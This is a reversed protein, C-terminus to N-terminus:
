IKYLNVINFLESLLNGLNSKCLDEAIINSRVKKNFHAVFNCRNEIIKKIIDEQQIELIRKHNKFVTTLLSITKESPDFLNYVRVILYDRLVRNFLVRKQADKGPNLRQVGEKIEKNISCLEKFAFICNKLIDNLSGLESKYKM